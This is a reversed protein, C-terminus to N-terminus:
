PLQRNHHGLATSYDNTIVIIHEPKTALIRSYEISIERHKRKRIEVPFAQISISKFYVMLHKSDQAVDETSIIRADETSIIADKHSAESDSMIIIRIHRQLLATLTGEYSSTCHVTEPVVYGGSM